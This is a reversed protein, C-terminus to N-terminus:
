SNIKHLRETNLNNIKNLSAYGGTSIRDRVRFQKEM